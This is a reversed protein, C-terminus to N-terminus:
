KCWCAGEGLINDRVTAAAWLWAGFRRFKQPLGLELLVGRATAWDRRADARAARAAEMAQPVQLQLVQSPSFLALTHHERPLALLYPHWFSATGKSVEHLLHLILVQLFRPSHAPASFPVAPLM